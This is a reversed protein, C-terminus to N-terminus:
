FGGRTELHYREIERLEDIRQLFNIRRTPHGEVTGGLRAVTMALTAREAALSGDLRDIIALLRVVEDSGAGHRSGWVASAEEWTLESM